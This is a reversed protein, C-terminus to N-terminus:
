VAPSLAIIWTPIVLQWGAPNKWMMPDVFVFVFVFVAM